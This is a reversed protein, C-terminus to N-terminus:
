VMNGPGKRLARSYPSGLGIAGIVGLASGSPQLWASSAGIVVMLFGIVALAMGVLASIWDGRDMELGLFRIYKEREGRAEKM